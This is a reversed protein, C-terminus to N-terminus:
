PLRGRHTDVRRDVYSEGTWPFLAGEDREVKNEFRSVLVPEWLGVTGIFNRITGIDSVAADAWTAKLFNEDAGAVEDDPVGIWFTRGRASRGTLGSTKRIALTVNNPFASGTHTGVGAGANQTATLDNIQDLGRVDTRIYAVEPPMETVFTALFATDIKDALAQLDAQVYGTPLQAYFVNQVTVGNLTYIMDIEATNPVRQFAIANEM